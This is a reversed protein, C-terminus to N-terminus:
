PTHDFVWESPAGPAIRYGERPVAIVTTDETIVQSGTVPAGNIQYEVGPTNPITITNTSPNFQPVGPTVAERDDALLTLIEEPLPLRPEETDSGYLIAELAELKDAPTSTSDVTITAAPKFGPVDVPTTTFEWSFQIAEPSDNITSYAKETPAALANYVFHLKYGYDTSSLDNGVRTRYSLGFPKRTQQGVSVGPAPIATGDCEAFQEPYTFAEITGGFEEASVLNLYKINDAYQPNAEAGSPSETVSILGNWAYGKNYIGAANPLYLVGHDVGTEFLRQGVQDWKLETM